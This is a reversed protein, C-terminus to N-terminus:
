KDIEQTEESLKIFENYILGDGSNLISKKESEDFYLKEAFFAMCEKVEDIPLEYLIEYCIRQKEQSQCDIKFDLYEDSECNDKLLM